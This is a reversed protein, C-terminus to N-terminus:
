HAPQIESQVVWKHNKMTMGHATYDVMYVPETTSSVVIGTAGKMGPMHEAEITVQGGDPVRTSGVGSLEEQVVWKHDVVKQGGTTPTYTVAYTTTSFAGVVTASAGKMGAMHDATLTVTSGVPYKANTAPKIGAPAPGGDASHDMTMTTSASPSTARTPTATGTSSATGAPASPTSTNTTDSASCGVFLLVAIASAALSSPITRM